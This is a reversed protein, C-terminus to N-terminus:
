FIQFLCRRCALPRITTVRTPDSFESAAGRFMKSVDPFKGPPAFMLAWPAGVNSWRACDEPVAPVDSLRGALHRAYDPNFMRDLALVVQLRVQLRPPHSTGEMHLFCHSEHSSAQAVNMKITGM